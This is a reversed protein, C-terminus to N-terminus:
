KNVKEITVLSRRAGPICGKVMILNNEIDIKAVKMKKLTVQKGGMRGPMKTGKFVRSPSSSAGISGPARHFTSGHSAGGGKFGHRKIVGQFGKGKSVGIISVFEGEKFLDVKIEQGIQYEQSDNVWFEKLVRAAKVNNKKFYGRQPKNIKKEQGEEFGLQVASYGNKPLTKTGTVWCPGALIATVVVANGEKDFIQTMGIKRGIIEGTM